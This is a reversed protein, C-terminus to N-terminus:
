LNVSAQLPSKKEKLKDILWIRALTSVNIGYNKALSEMRGKLESQIRITLVEEKKGKLNVNLNVPKLSSLYDTVDHSDWFRAEEKISKFKPIKKNM